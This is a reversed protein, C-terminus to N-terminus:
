PCCAGALFWVEHGPLALPPPSNDAILGASSNSSEGEPSTLGTEQGGPPRTGPDPLGLQRWILVQAATPTDFWFYEDGSPCFFVTLCFGSLTDLVQDPTRLGAAVLEPNAQCDREILTYVMLAVVSVFCLALLADDRHVYIPRIPLDSKLNRMRREVHRHNKYVGLMWDMYDVQSQGPQLPQNSVLVWKGDLRAVQAIREPRRQHTLSTTGDGQEQFRVQVLTRVDKFQHALDALHGAVWEPDGYYQGKNLHDRVWDLRAEYTQLRRERQAAAAVQRTTDLLIAARVRFRTERYKPTAGGKGQRKRRARVQQREQDSLTEKVQFRLHCFAAQIAHGARQSSVPLPRFQEGPCRAVVTRLYPTWDVPGLFRGHARAIALMNGASQMIRDGTVLLDSRHFLTHLQHHTAVTTTADNTSGPHVNSGGPLVVEGDATAALGINVQPRDPRHDRSYGFEVWQSGQYDGHFFVSTLDYHVTEVQLQFREVAQLTVEAAIEQWHPYVALLADALRDYNLLDPDSIGLLLHLGTNKVWAAVNSLACPALLRNVVLITLVVGESLGGQRPCRRDVAAALGIREVYTLVLHLGGVQYTIKEVGREQLTSLARVEPSPIEPFAEVQATSPTVVGPQTLDPTHQWAWVRGVLGQATYVVAGQWGGTRWFTPSSWRKPPAFRQRMRALRADFKALDQRFRYQGLVWGANLQELPVARWLVGNAHYFFLVSGAAAPDTVHLVLSHGGQLDLVVVDEFVLMGALLPADPPALQDLQTAGRLVSVAVDSLIVHIHYGGFPNERVGPGLDKPSRMDAVM